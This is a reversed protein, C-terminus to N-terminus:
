AIEMLNPFKNEKLGDNFISALNECYCTAFNQIISIPIDNSISAKNSPLKKVTEIVDGKSISKFSFSEGSYNEGILRCNEENEFFQSEDVQM